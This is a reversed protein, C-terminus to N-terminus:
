NAKTWWRCLGQFQVQYTTTGAVNTAEALFIIRDGTNLNRSLRSKIRQIRQNSISQAETGTGLEPDPSGFYKYAMIWEPHQIPTDVTVQYGEPIYMVYGCCSEINYSALLGATEFQINLEINKVRLVNNGRSSSYEQNEVLTNIAIDRTEPPVSFTTPGLRLINPSYKGARRRSYKRYRTYKAM